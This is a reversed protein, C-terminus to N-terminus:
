VKSWENGQRIPKILGALSGVGYVVHTLLFVLPMAMMFRWDQEEKVVPMAGLFAVLMYAVVIMAFLTFFMPFFLSLLLSSIIVVVFTLPVLNRWSFIRKGTIRSIYFPTLGGVYSWNVYSRLDGRAYYYCVIDPAFLIRGGAKQLRVNFERDQGRILREDFFGIEDFLKRRYCGGFVTDVWKMDNAGTRYTANGAAFPHSISHAIARALVTDNGPLTKRLGGVNDANRENLYRVSKPIYEPDYYAHADMRIIVEGRAGQIGLNLAKPKIKLPNDLLRIFPYRREYERVIERTGDNSMGDVVIVELRNKPYSNVVISDLCQGIFRSENYCPIIISVFPLSSSPQTTSVIDKM